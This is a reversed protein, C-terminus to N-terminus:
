HATLDGERETRAGCTAERESWGTVFGEYLVDVDPRKSTRALAEPVASMVTRCLPLRLYTAAQKAAAFDRTHEGIGM